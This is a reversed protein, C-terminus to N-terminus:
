GIRLKKPGASYYPQGPQWNRNKLEALHVQYADHAEGGAVYDTFSGAAARPAEAATLQDWGAPRWSPDREDLVRPITVHGQKITPLPADAPVPPPEQRPVSPLEPPELDPPPSHAEAKLELFRSREDWDQAVKEWAEGSEIVPPAVLVFHAHRSTSNMEVQAVPKGYARNWLVTAAEIQMAESKSTKVIKFLTEAIEPTSKDIM